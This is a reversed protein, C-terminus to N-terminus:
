MRSRRRPCRRRLDAECERWRGTFKERQKKRKLTTRRKRRNSLIITVTCFHRPYSLIADEPSRVCLRSAPSRRTSPVKCFPLLLAARACVFSSAYSVQRLERRKRRNKLARAVRRRTRAAGSSASPVTSDGPPASECDSRRTQRGQTECDQLTSSDRGCDRLDSHRLRATAGGLRGTAGLTTTKDRLLGPHRLRATTGGLRAREYQSNPECHRPSEGSLLLRRAHSYGLTGGGQLRVHARLRATSELRATESYAQTACATRM